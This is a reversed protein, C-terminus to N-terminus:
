SHVVTSEKGETTHEYIFDRVPILSQRTAFDAPCHQHIWTELMKEIEDWDNKEVAIERRIDNPASTGMSVTMSILRQLQVM